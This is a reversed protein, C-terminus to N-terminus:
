ELNIKKSFLYRTPFYCATSLLACLLILAALVVWIAHVPSLDLAPAPTEEFLMDSMTISVIMWSWLASLLYNIGFYTAVSAGVKRKKALQGIGIALYVMFLGSLVGVVSLVLALVVTVVIEGTSVENTMINWFQIIESSDFIGAGIIFFCGIYLVFFAAILILGVFAKSFLIKDISIPLTFTLYAEDKVMARYFRVIIYIYTVSYCVVLIIVCAAVSMQALWALIKNESDYIGSISFRNVVALLLTGIWIPIFLRLAARLDYKMLKGM